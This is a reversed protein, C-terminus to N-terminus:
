PRRVADDLSPNAESESSGLLRSDEGGSRRIAEALGIAVSTSLNLSRAEPRIPIRVSRDPREALWHASLGRSEPGFVLGDGVSFAASTYVAEAKTSFSWLRNRGLVQAVEDLHDVVKWDLHPWYDLGARKIHRDTMQFGLPRVLWLKAGLAVCTRGIAGTNGAIEPECLIVHIRQEDLIASAM